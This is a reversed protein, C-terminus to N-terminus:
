ALNYIKEPKWFPTEKNRLHNLTADVYFEETTKVNSHGLLKQVAKIDGTKEYTYMAFSHRLQHFKYDGIHNKVLMRLSSSSYKGGKAGEFLYNKPNYEDVYSVLLMTIFDPLPAKRQKLGKGNILVFEQEIDVDNMLISRVENNRLGCGYGLTLLLRHKTNSISNIRKMLLEHNINKPIMKIKPPRIVSFDKVKRKLYLKFYAKIANISGNRYAFSKDRISLNFDLIHNNTVRDPACDVFNLFEAVSGSYQDVTSKPHKLSLIHKFRKLVESKTNM